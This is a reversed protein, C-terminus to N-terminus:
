AVKLRLVGGVADILQIVPLKTMTTDGERYYLEILNSGEDLESMAIGTTADNAVEVLIRYSVVDGSSSVTEGPERDVIGKISRQSQAGSDAFFRVDEGFHDTLDTFSDQFEDDFNTLGM